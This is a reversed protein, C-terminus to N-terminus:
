RKQTYKTEVLRQVADQAEDLARRPEKEGLLVPRTAIKGVETDVELFWPAARWHPLEPALEKLLQGPKQGAFFPDDALLRPDDIVKRYTPWIRRLDYDHLIAPSTHAYIIFDIAAASGKAGKLAGVGTGGATTTSPTTPRWQPMPM